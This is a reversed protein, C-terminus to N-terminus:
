SFQKAEISPSVRSFLTLQPLHRRLLLYSAIGCTINATLLALYFGELGALYMGAYSMPVSLVVVRLLTSYLATKARFIAKASSVCIITSALGLYGFPLIKLMDVLHHNTTQSETFLGAVCSAFYSLFLATILQTFFCIKLSVAISQSVRKTLGAAINQGIVVPLSTTLLMPLFLAL